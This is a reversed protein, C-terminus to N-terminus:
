NKKRREEMDIKFLRQRVKEMKELVADNTINNRSPSKSPYDESSESDESDYESSSPSVDGDGQNEYIEFNQEVPKEKNKNDRSRSRSRARRYKKSRSIPPPTKQPKIIKESPTSYLPPQKTEDDSDDDSKKNQSEDSSDEKFISSHDEPFLVRLLESFVEKNENPIVWGKKGSLWKGDVQKSINIYKNKLVGQIIFHTDSYESYTPSAM